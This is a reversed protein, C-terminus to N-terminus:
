KCDEPTAVVGCRLRGAHQVKMATAEAARNSQGAGALAPTGLAQAGIVMFCALVMFCKNVM